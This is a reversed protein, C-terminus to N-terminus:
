VPAARGRGAPSTSSTRRLAAVAHAPNCNYNTTLNWCFAMQTIASMTLDNYDPWYPSHLMTTTNFSESYVYGSAQAPLSAPWSRTSDAARRRGRRWRRHLSGAGLGVCYQEGCRSRMYFGTFVIIGNANTRTFYRLLLSLRCCAAPRSRSPQSSPPQLSSASGLQAASRQSHQASGGTSFWDRQYTGTNQYFKFQTCAPSGYGHPPGLVYGGYHDDYIMSYNCLAQYAPSFYAQVGVIRQLSPDGFNTDSIAGGYYPPGPTYQYCGKTTSPQSSVPSPLQSCLLVHLLLLLWVVVAPSSTSM